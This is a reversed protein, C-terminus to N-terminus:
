QSASGALASKLLRAMEELSDAATEPDGVEALWERLRDFRRNYLPLLDELEAPRKLKDRVAELRRRADGESAEIRARCLNYLAQCSM